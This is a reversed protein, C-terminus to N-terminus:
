CLYAADEMGPLREKTLCTQVALLVEKYILGPLNNSIGGEFSITSSLGLGLGTPRPETKFGMGEAAM